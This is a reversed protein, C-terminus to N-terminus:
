DFDEDTTGHSDRTPVARYRGRAISWGALASGGGVAVVASAAALLWSPAFGDTLWLYIAVPIAAAISGAVFQGARHVQLSGSNRLVRTSLLALPIGVIPTVVLTVGASIILAFFLGFPGTLVATIITIAGVFILVTWGAGVAINRGTPPLPIPATTV